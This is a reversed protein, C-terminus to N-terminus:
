DKQQYLIDQESLREIRETFRPMFEFKVDDLKGMFPNEIRNQIEILSILLFAIIASMAIGWYKLNAFEPALVFVSIILAFKLFLRLIVPTRHEKIIILKEFSFYIQGFWQHLRSLEPSPLGTKRLMEVILELHKLKQEAYFLKNQAAKLDNEQLYSSIAPMIESLGEAIKSYEKKSLDRFQTIQLFSILNAKILAIEDYAKFRREDSTNMVINFSVFIGIFFVSAVVHMEIAFGLELCLFTVIASFIPFIIIKPAWIHKFFHLIESPSWLHRNFNPM